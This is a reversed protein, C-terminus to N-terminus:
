LPSGVSKCTYIYVYLMYIYVYLMYIYIYMVYKPQTSNGSAEVPRLPFDQPPRRLPPPIDGLKLMQPNYNSTASFPKYVMDWQTVIKVPFMM